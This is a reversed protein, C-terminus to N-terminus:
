AAPREPACTRLAPKPSGSVSIAKATALVEAQGYKGEEFQFQEFV